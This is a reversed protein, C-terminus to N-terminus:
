DTLSLVTPLMVTDTKSVLECVVSVAFPKSLLSPSLTVMLMPLAGVMAPPRMKPVTYSPFPFGLEPALTVMLGEAEGFVIRVAVDSLLPMYVLLPRGSPSTVTDATRVSPALRM